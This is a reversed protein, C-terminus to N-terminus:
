LLKQGDWVRCTFEDQMRTEPQEKRPQCADTAKECPCLKYRPKRWSPVVSVLARRKGPALAVRRRTFINLLLGPSWQHSARPEAGWGREAKSTTGTKELGM